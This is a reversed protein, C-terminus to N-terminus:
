KKKNNKTTPLPKANTASAPVKLFDHSGFNGYSQGVKVTMMKGLKMYVFVNFTALKKNKVVMKVTMYKYKGYKQIQKFIKAQATSQPTTNFIPEAAKKMLVKDTVKATLTYTSKNRKMKYVKVLKDSPDSILKNNMIADTLEAYSHGTLKELDAKYWTDQGNIYVNNLNVWEESSQTKGSSTTQNTIHYVTSNGGFTTNALVVQNSTDTGLTVSQIVQGSKFSKKAKQVVQTKNLVPEAKKQQQQSCGSLLFVATLSIGIFVKKVKMVFGGTYKHM